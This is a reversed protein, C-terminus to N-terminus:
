HVTLDRFFMIIHVLIEKWLYIDLKIHCLINSKDVQMYNDLTAMWQFVFKM